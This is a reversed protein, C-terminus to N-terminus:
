MKFAVQIELHIIKLLLMMLLMVDQAIILHVGDSQVKVGAIGATNKLKEVDVNSM